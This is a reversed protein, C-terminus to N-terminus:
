ALHPLISIDKFGTGWPENQSRWQMDTAKELMYGELLIFGPKSGGDAMWKHGHEIKTSRCNKLFQWLETECTKM